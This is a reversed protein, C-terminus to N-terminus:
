FIDELNKIFSSEDFDKTINLANKSLTNQLSVDNIIELVRNTFESDTKVLFGNQGNKIIEKAGHLDFAVVPVGISMAEIITMGFSDIKSTFLCVLSKELYNIISLKDLLGLFSVNTDDKYKDKYFDLETGIGGINLMLGSVQSKLSEYTQFVQNLNKGEVRRGYTFITKGNLALKKYDHSTFERDLIPYLVKSDVNYIDKLSSKLYYSNSVLTDIFRMSFRELLKKILIFVNTNKSYYWPYHHHWWILKAKSFFLIKSLVGVFQMPSNGIIIYDSNRISYATKLKNFCNVKFTIDKSFIQEDYSFAYFEVINEKKLLNSLYIMMNIAGGKNNVNPHLVSIIKDKPIM